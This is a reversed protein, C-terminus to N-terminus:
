GCALHISSHLAIWLYIILGKHKLVFILTQLRILNPWMFEVLVYM